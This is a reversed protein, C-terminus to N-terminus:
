EGVAGYNQHRGAFALGTGLVGAMRAYVHSSSLLDHLLTQGRAETGTFLLAIGIAVGAAIRDHQNDQLLPVLQETILEECQDM